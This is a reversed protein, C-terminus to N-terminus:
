LLNDNLKKRKQVFAFRTVKTGEADVAVATAAGGAVVRTRRKDAMSLQSVPQLASTM